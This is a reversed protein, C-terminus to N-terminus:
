YRIYSPRAGGDQPYSPPPNFFKKGYGTTSLCPVEIPRQGWADSVDFSPHQLLDYEPDISIAHMREFLVHQGLLLAIEDNELVEFDERFRKQKFGANFELTILGHAKMVQNNLDKFEHRSQRREDNELGLKKLLDLSIFNAEAGTDVKTWVNLPKREGRPQLTVIMWTPDRQDATGTVTYRNGHEPDFTTSSEVGNGNVSHGPDDIIFHDSDSDPDLENTTPTAVPDAPINIEDQEFDKERVGDSGEDVRAFDAVQLTM